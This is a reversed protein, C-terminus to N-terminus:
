PPRLACHTPRRPCRGTRRSRSDSGAARTSCPWGRRPRRTSGTRAPRWSGAARTAFVDALIQARRVTGTGYVSDSWEEVAQVESPRLLRPNAAAAEAVPLPIGLAAAVETSSRGRATQLQAMRFWQEAHRAEHRALPALELDAAAGIPDPAGVASVPTREITWTDHRFQAPSGGALSIVVAPVPVEAPRLLSTVLRHLSRAQDSPADISVARSRAPRGPALGERPGSCAAEVSSLAAPAILGSRLGAPTMGGLVAGVALAAACLRRRRSSHSPGHRGAWRHRRAASSTPHRPPRATATAGLLVPSRHHLTTLQTSIPPHPM